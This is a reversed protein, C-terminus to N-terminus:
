KMPIWSDDPCIFDFGSIYIVIATLKIIEVTYSWVAQGYDMNDCFLISLITMMIGFLIYVRFMPM